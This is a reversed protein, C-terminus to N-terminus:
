EDHAACALAASLTLAGAYRLTLPVPLTSFMVADIKASNFYPIKKEIFFSQL